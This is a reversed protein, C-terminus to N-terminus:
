LPGLLPGPGGESAWSRWCLDWSRGLDGVYAGPAAWSRVCLGWSWGCLGTLKMILWGDLIDFFFILSCAHQGDVERDVM